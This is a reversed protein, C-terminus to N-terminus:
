LRAKYQVAGESHGLGHQEEDFEFKIEGIAYKIKSFKTYFSRCTNLKEIIEDRTFTKGGATILRSALEMSYEDFGTEFWHRLFDRTNKYIDMGHNPHFEEYIFNQNWGAIRIDDTEHEFLEETIFRYIVIPQYNGLVDLFVNKEAMLDHLRKLEEEVEDAMLLDAPKFSPRGILDYVKITKRNDWEAEFQQVNKLFEAEVEPPLNEMNGGFIAGKEAQMKLKLLENEIRLNEEPDNSFFQDEQIKNEDAGM